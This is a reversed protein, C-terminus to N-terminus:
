FLYKDTTAVPKIRFRIISIVRPGDGEAPINNLSSQSRTSVCVMLIDDSGCHLTPKKSLTDNVMINVSQSKSM